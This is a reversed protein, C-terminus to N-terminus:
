AQFIIVFLARSSGFNELAMAMTPQIGYKKSKMKPVNGDRQMMKQLDTVSMAAWM